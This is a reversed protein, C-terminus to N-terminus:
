HGLFFCQFLGSFGSTLTKLEVADYKPSAALVEVPNGAKLHLRSKFAQAVM